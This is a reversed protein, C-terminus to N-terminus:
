WVKLGVYGIWKVSLNSASVCNTFMFISSILCSEFSLGWLIFKTGHIHCHLPILFSKNHSRNKCFSRCTAMLSFSIHGVSCILFWYFVIPNRLFIIIKPGWIFCCGQGCNNSGINYRDSSLLHWSCIASNIM